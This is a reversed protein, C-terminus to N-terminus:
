ICTPFFEFLFILLKGQYNEMRPILRAIPVPISNKCIPCMGNMRQLCAVCYLYAHCQGCGILDDKSEYCITCMEPETDETCDMMTIWFALMVTLARYILTNMTETTNLRHFILNSSSYYPSNNINQYRRGWLLFHIPQKTIEAKLIRNLSIIM